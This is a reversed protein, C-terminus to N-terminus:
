TWVGKSFLSEAKYKDGGYVDDLGPILRLWSLSIKDGGAGYTSRDELNAFGDEARHYHSIFFHDNLHDVLNPAGTASLLAVFLFKKPATHYGTRSFIRRGRLLELAQIQVQHDVLDLNKAIIVEAVEGEHTLTRSTM